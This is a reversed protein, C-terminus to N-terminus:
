VQGDMVADAIAKVMLHISRMADDNAPLIYDVVDPNSNSDLLAIVPIDLTNCERIATADHQTDVIFVIDPLSTVDRIGGLRRQLKTIKREIFLAEKKTLQDLEGSDRQQELKKLREISQRITEWNTLTGGLWRHNVYPMGCRIAEQKIIESAQQKTSVFLLTGGKAVMDSIKDHYEHLNRMTLQLNLIHIGNRTTFIYPEM